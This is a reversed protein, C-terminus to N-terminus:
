FTKYIELISSYTGIVCGVLGLTIIFGNKMYVTKCCDFTILEIIAPLILALFSSECAGILAILLDLHPILASLGCTGLVLALRLLYETYVPLSTGRMKTRKDVYHWIIEMPVYFVIAYTLFISAAFMLRASLYLWQDNPLNFTISGETEDGYKLYGYFGVANDLAIVITLGLTLIGAKGLFADKDKMKKHLPLVKFCNYQCTNAPDKLSWCKEQNQKFKICILQPLFGIENKSLQKTHWKRVLAIGEFAFLVQGFFLPIDRAKGVSPRTRTDPLDQWLNVFVLIFGLLNLVNAVASFPALIKLSKVMSYPVLMATVMLIYLITDLEVQAAYEVVQKINDAIFVIYTCCFGLQTTVLFTNVMRRAFSSWNRLWDKRTKFATEMVTAYDLHESRTRKRLENGSLVLIHMCHTCISGIITVVGLSLWLGGNKYAVPLALIGVGIHGKLLHMLCETNRYAGFRTYGVIQC